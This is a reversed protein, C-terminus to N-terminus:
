IINNINEEAYGFSATMGKGGIGSIFHLNSYLETNIIPANKAQSYYGIWTQCISLHSMQVIRNAENWIFKNVLHDTKYSSSEHRDVDTYHHSDGILIQGNACQKMLIHISNQSQFSSPDEKSKIKNYSPCEQFSEYRTISWGSLLSGSIFGTEHPQTAMMQLRVIEVEHNSVENHFFQNFDHGTCLLAIPAIFESKTHSILKWNNGQSEINIIKEGFSFKVNLNNKLYSIIRPIIIEADVNVENPFYLAGKAYSKKVSPIREQIQNFGIIHSEYNNSENIKQLEHILTLQDNTEAIYITGNQQLSLDLKHHIDLYTKLSKRGYQQWKSGFGSPVIQGFNRVSAGNPQGSAEIVHVSLGKQALHYAHALGLIGAGVITVDYQNTHNSM